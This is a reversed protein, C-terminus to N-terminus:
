RSIFILGGVCILVVGTIRNIRQHLIPSNLMKSVHDFMLALVLNGLFPV